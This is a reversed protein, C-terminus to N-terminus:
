SDISLAFIVKLIYIEEIHNHMYVMIQGPSDPTKKEAKLLGAPSCRALFPLGKAEIKEVPQISETQVENQSVKEDEKKKEVPESIKVKYTHVSGEETERVIKSVQQIYYKGIWFPNKLRDQAMHKCVM